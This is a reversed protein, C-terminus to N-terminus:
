IVALDKIYEIKREVIGKKTDQFHIETINSTNFYSKLRDSMCEPYVKQCTALLQTDRHINKLLVELEKVGKTSFSIDSIFITSKYVETLDAISLAGIEKVITLKENFGSVGSSFESYNDVIKLCSSDIYGLISKLLTTKGCGSLGTILINKHEKICKLITEKQYESCVGMSVLRDLTFKSRNIIDFVIRILRKNDPELEVSNSINKLNNILEDKYVRSFNILLAENKETKKVLVYRENRDSKTRNDNLIQIINKPYINLLLKLFMNAYKEKDPYKIGLKLSNIIGSKNKRIFELLENETLTIRKANTKTSATIKKNIM